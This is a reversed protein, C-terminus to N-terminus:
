PRFLEGARRSFGSLAAGFARLDQQHLAPLMGLLVLRCMADTHALDGPEGAPDFVQSEAAGHRGQLGRPVALVIKWQRPFDVRAVLPSLEDPRAKGGEVLFGGSQFGHVGLASREGRGALRSLTVADPAEGATALLVARAVALGLQTGTGLGVHEPAAREVVLQCPAAGCRRAFALAREALPGEASWAPAPRVAVTVGPDRVMLGVGGFGRAPVAARGEVGPWTGAHGPTFLGFHLRSPARVRIVESV